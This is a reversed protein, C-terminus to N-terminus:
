PDTSGSPDRAPALEDLEVNGTESNLVEKLTDLPVQLTDAVDDLDLDVYQKLLAPLFRCFADSYFYFGDARRYFSYPHDMMFGVVARLLETCRSVKSVTPMTREQPKGWLKM